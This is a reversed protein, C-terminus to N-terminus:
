IPLTACKPASRDAGGSDSGGHYTSCPLLYPLSHWTSSPTRQPSPRPDLSVHHRASALRCLSRGSVADDHHPICDPTLRCTATCPLALPMHRATLADSNSKAANSIGRYIFISFSAFLSLYPPTVATLHYCAHPFPVFFSISFFTM